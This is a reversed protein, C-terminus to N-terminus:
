ALKQNRYLVKACFYFLSQRIQEDPEQSEASPQTPLTESTAKSTDPTQPQQPQSTSSTVPTVVFILGEDSDDLEVKPVGAEGTVTVRINNIDQNTVVVETIGAFPKEQRFSNASPLSLQTNPIDIIFNNGESKNVIQLKDSAPTELIIELSNPTPNLRVGTVQIVPNQQQAFLKKVSTHPLQIESLQPIDKIAIEEAYAPFNTFISITSALWLYAFLSNQKM